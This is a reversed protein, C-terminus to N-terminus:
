REGVEHEEDWRGGDGEGGGVGRGWGGCAGQDVRDNGGKQVVARQGNRTHCAEHGHM